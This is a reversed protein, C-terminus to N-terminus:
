GAQRPRPIRQFYLDLSGASCTSRVVWVDLFDSHGIAPLAFVVAPKGAYKAFDVAVPVTSVGGALITGCALVADQSTRLQEQTFVPAGGASAQGATPATASEQSGSLASPPPTGLVLHPVLTRLTAANYDTGTSWQKMQAPTPRKPATRNASASPSSSSSSDGQFVNGAVLAGVLVLVAVVAAAGAIAPTNWVRRRSLPVITTPPEDAVRALAADVRGVVADPMPDPPLASLLARTTRVRSLLHRCAGCDDLHAHVAAVTDPSAVGAEVDAVTDLDVHGSAPQGSTPQDSM